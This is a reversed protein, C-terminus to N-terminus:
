NESSRELHHIHRLQSLGVARVGHALRVLREFHGLVLLGSLRLGGLSPPPIITLLLPEPTLRLRNQPLLRLGRLLQDELHLAGDALPLVLYTWKIDFVPRSM